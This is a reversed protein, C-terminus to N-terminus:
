PALYHFASSSYAIINTHLCKYVFCIYHYIHTLICFAHINNMYLKDKKLACRVLVYIYTHSHCINYSILMCPIQVIQGSHDQLAVLHHLEDLIVSALQSVNEPIFVHPLFDEKCIEKTKPTDSFILSLM